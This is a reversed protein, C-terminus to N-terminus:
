TQSSTIARVKLAGICIGLAPTAGEFGDGELLRGPEPQPGMEGSGDDYLCWGYGEPVLTLAADLSSTYHHVHRYHAVTEGLPWDKPAPTDPWRLYEDRGGSWWEPSWLRAEPNMALDIARDLERSSKQAMELREILERM